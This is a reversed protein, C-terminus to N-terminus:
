VWSNGQSFPIESRGRGVEDPRGDLVLTIIQGVRYDALDAFARAIGDYNIHGVLIIPSSIL